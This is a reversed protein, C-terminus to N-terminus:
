VYIQRHTITNTHLLGALWGATPIKAVPAAWVGVAYNVDPSLTNHPSAFVYVYVCVRIVRRVKTLNNRTSEVTPFM